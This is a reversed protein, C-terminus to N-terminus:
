AMKEVRKVDYYSAREDLLEFTFMWSVNRFEEVDWLSFIFVLCGTDDTFTASHDQEELRLARQCIWAMIEELYTRTDSTFGSAFGACLLDKRVEPRLNVLPAGPPEWEEGDFNTPSM